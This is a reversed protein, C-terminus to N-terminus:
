PNGKFMKLNVKDGVKQCQGFDVESQFGFHFDTWSTLQWTLCSGNTLGYSSPLFKSRDGAMLDGATQVYLEM